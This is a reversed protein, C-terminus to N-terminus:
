EREREGGATASEGSRVEALHVVSLQVVQLQLHVFEEFHLTSAIRGKDCLTYCGELSPSSSSSSFSCKNCPPNAGGARLAREWGSSDHSTPTQPDFSRNEAELSWRELASRM